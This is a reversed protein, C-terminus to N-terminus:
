GYKYVNGIIYDLSLYLLLIYINIIKMLVPTRLTIPM